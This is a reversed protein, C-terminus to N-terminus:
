VCHEIRRLREILGSIQLAFSVEGAGFPQIQLKQSGLRVMETGQLHEAKQPILL